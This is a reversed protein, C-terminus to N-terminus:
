LKEIMDAYNDIVRDTFTEQYEIFIRNVITKDTIRYLLRDNGYIMRLLGAGRLKKIHWSITSPAKGIHDVIENFTCLDNNIVFLVINRIVKSRFCSIIDSDGKPINVTFYRTVRKNSKREVRIEGFKELMGLHYTLVGNSIGALRILERYRIGPNKDIFGFIERRIDDSSIVLDQNHSLFQGNSPLTNM